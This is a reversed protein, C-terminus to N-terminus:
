KIKKEEDLACRRTATLVDLYETMLEFRVRAVQGRLLYDYLKVQM